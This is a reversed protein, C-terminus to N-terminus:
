RSVCSDEKGALFLPCPQAYQMCLISAYKNLSGRQDQVLQYTSLSNWHLTFTISGPAFHVGCSSWKKLITMEMSDPIM